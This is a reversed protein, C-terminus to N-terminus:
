FGVQLIIPFFIDLPQKSSGGWFPPMKDDSHKEHWELPFRAVAAMKFSANGMSRSLWLAAGGMMGDQKYTNMDDKQEYQFGLDLGVTGIELQYSPILYAILNLGRQQVERGSSDSGAFAADVRGLLRFNYNRYTAAVSAQFDKRKKYTDKDDKDTGEFPIKAGIDLVIDGLATLQLAVEVVNRIGIYQARALGFGPINYGVAVQTKRYVDKVDYYDQNIDAEDKGGIQSDNAPTTNAFSVGGIDGWNVLNFQEPAIFAGIFLNETPEWTIMAAGGIRPWFLNQTGKNANGWAYPNFRTFINYEPNQIEIRFEHLRYDKSLVYTALDSGAIKGTLKDNNPVGLFITFTEMYPIFDFPKVWVWGGGKASLPHAATNGAGYAIDIGLHFGGWESWGDANLGASIDPEGWPVQVATTYMTDGKEPVTMRFPIWYSKTYGGLNLQAFVSVALACFLAGLIALKKM